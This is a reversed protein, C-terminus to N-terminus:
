VWEPVSSVHVRHGNRRLSLAASLGGIGAGVIIIKLPTPHDDVIPSTPGVKNPGPSTVHAGNGDVAHKLHYGGDLGNALSKLKEM